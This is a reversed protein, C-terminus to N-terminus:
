KLSEHNGVVHNKTKLLGDSGSVIICGHEVGSRSTKEWLNYFTPQLNAFKLIVPANSPLAPVRLTAATATPVDISGVWTPATVDEYTIGRYPYSGSGGIWPGGM